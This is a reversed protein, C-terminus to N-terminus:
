SYKNKNEVQALTVKKEYPKPVQRYGVKKTWLKLAQYHILLMVKVTLFPVKVMSQIITSSQLSKTEGTVSTLLQLVNEQYYYIYIRIKGCDTVQFNFRYSGTRDYFPSVHFMKKAHFWTNADIHDLDNAICVYCHSQKFTNNVEAIVGILQGQYFGFWFSVPNFLYGYVRPMTMLYLRDIMVDYQAFIDKAWQKSSSSDRYGHDKDYFSLLNPKNVSFLNSACNPDDMDLVVYYARYSFKNVKPKFRKHHVKANLLGTKMLAM